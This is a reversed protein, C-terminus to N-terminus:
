KNMQYLSKFDKTDEVIDGGTWNNAIKQYVLLVDELKLNFENIIIDCITNYKLPVGNRTAWCNINNKHSNVSYKHDIYFTVDYLDFNGEGGYWEFYDSEDNQEEYKVDSIHDSINSNNLSEKLEKTQYLSELVEEDEKIQEKVYELPKNINEILDSQEVLPGYKSINNKIEIYIRLPLSEYISLYINRLEVSVSSLSIQDDVNRMFYFINKWIDSILVVTVVTSGNKKGKMKEKKKV